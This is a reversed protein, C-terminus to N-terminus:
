YLLFRNFGAYHINAKFDCLICIYGLVGMLAITNQRMRSSLIM